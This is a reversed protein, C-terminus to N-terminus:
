PPLPNRVTAFSIPFYAGDCTRVCVTRYTGSQPGFDGGPPNPNNNGFLNSLFNGPGSGAARAM